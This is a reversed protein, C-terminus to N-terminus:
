SAGFGNPFIFALILVATHFSVTLTVLSRKANEIGVGVLWGYVPFQVCAIVLGPATISDTFHTSLITLPFLLRALVYDGHGAGASAVALFLAIPTFLVGASVGIMKTKM